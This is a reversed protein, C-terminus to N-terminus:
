FCHLSCFCNLEKQGKYQTIGMGMREAVIMYIKFSHPEQHIIASCNSEIKIKTNEKEPCNATLIM